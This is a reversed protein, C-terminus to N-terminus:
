DFSIQTKNSAEIIEVTKQQKKPVVPAPMENIGPEEYTQVIPLSPLSAPTYTYNINSYTKNSTQASTQAPKKGVIVTDDGIPRMVLLIKGSSYIEVLDQIKNVPVEFTASKAKTISINENTQENTETPELSLIKVKSLVFSNDKSKSFVDVMSGQKMESSLGDLSSTSLTLARYGERLGKNDSKSALVGTFVYGTLIQGKKVPELLVNGIVMESSSLADEQETAFSTKTIDEQAITEGAEMDHTATLYSYKGSEIQKDRLQMVQILQDKEKIQKKLSSFANLSICTAIVGIVLAIFIKRANKNAM